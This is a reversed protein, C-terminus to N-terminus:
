CPAGSTGSASSRSPKCSLSSSSSAASDFAAHCCSSEKYGNQAGDKFTHEVRNESVVAQRWALVRELQMAAHLTWMLYNHECSCTPRSQRQRFSSTKQKTSHNPIADDQRIVKTVTTATRNM